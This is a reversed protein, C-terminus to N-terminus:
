KQTLNGKMSLIGNKYNANLSGVFKRQAFESVTDPVLSLKSWDVDSMNAKNGGPVLYEDKVYFRGGINEAVGHAMSFSDDMNIKGKSDSTIQYATGRHVFRITLQRKNQAVRLADEQAYSYNGLPFLLLCRLGVPIAPNKTDPSDYRVSDLLATSNKKSAGSSADYGDKVVMGDSVWNLYNSSDPRLVNFRFDITVKQAGVAWLSTCLLVAMVLSFKIKKM